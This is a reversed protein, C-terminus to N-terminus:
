RLMKTFVLMRAWTPMLSVIGQIAVTKYYDWYNIYGTKWIKRRGNKYKKFYDYGGRREIMAYGTRAYVLCEGINKCKAGSQIMNVWLLDDEMLPADQYNGARLVASKRYMVTMHNFASRQKQYKEIQKQTLPVKRVSLINSIKGSFEQTYSGCIDLEPTMFFEFLQREFRDKRAIDDTDMRAILEYTCHRIGEALAPGLGQNKALPVTKIINPYREKYKQIVKELEKTIAGDKVIIIESPLVTQYFMSKICQEFYDPKEKIYLSMLVSFNGNKM